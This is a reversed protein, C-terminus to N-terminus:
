SEILGRVVRGRRGFWCKLTIVWSAALYWAPYFASAVVLGRTFPDVV